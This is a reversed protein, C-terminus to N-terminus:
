LLLFLLLTFFICFIIDQILTVQVIVLWKIIIAFITVIITLLVPHLVQAFWESLKIKLLKFAYRRYAWTIGIVQVLVFAIIPSAIGYYPLILVMLLLKSAVEVMHLPILKGVKALGFHLMTDHKNLVQFVLAFGAWVFIWQKGYSISYGVWLNVVYPGLISYLVGALIAALYLFRSSILFIQKLETDQEKAKLRTFYPILVESCRGILLSIFEAVKWIFVYETVYKAGMFSGIIFVDAYMLAFQFIGFVFYAGGVNLIIDKILSKQPWYFKFSDIVNTIRLHIRAIVAIIATSVVQAIFIFDIRPHKMVFALLLLLFIIQSAIRYANAQTQKLYAMFASLDANLAYSLVINLGCFICAYRVQTIISAENNVFWFKGALLAYVLFGLFILSAYLTYGIFISWHVESVTYQVAKKVSADGILKIGAGALWGIGVAVFNSASSLIVYIGTLEGGLKSYFEPLVIGMIIINLFINIYSSIISLLYQIM